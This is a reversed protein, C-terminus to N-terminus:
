PLRRKGSVLNKRTHKAMQCVECNAVARRIDATQGYWYWQLRIRSLTRTFGSHVQSHTDWIVSKRMGEPCLVKQRNQRAGLNIVLVGDPHVSLMSLRNYLFKFEPNSLHFQEDSM